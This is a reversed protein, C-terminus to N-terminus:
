YSPNYIEQRLQHLEADRVVERYRREMARGSEENIECYERGGWSNNSCGAKAPYDNGVCCAVVCLSAFLTKIM